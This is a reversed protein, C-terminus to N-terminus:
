RLTVRLVAEGPFPATFSRNGAKAAFLGDHRDKGHRSRVM